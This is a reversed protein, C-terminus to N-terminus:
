MAICAAQWLSALKSNPRLIEFFEHMKHGGHMSHVWVHLGLKSTGKFMLNSTLGSSQKSCSIIGFPFELLTGQFGM